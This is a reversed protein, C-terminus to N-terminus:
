HANWHVVNHNHHPVWFSSTTKKLKNKKRSTLREGNSRCAVYTSFSLLLLSNREGQSAWNLVCVRVRCRWEAITFRVHTHTYTKPWLIYGYVSQVRGANRAAVSLYELESTIHESPITIERLWERARVNDTKAAHNGRESNPEIWHTQIYIKCSNPQTRKRSLCM